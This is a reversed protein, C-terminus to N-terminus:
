KLRFKDFFEDEILIKNPTTYEINTLLRGREAVLKGEHLNLPVIRQIFSKVQTPIIKDDFLEPLFGKKTLSNLFYHIDYYQNRDSLIFISKAWESDVKDNIIINEISSFDFDWLKIQIGINPVIYKKDNINYVFNKNKDTIELKYVLINNAKMDNHRFGPYKTHIIALTAIIQFLIVKWEKVSMIKYNNRLYDLLDGGNAWESILISISDYYENQNKYKTLLDKNKKNLNKTKKFLKYLYDIDTYFTSIPLIIHPTFNNIVFFSLKKLIVLEVNEPRTKSYQDGYIKKKNYPVIKMAYNYIKDDINTSGKFIHGTSGSKIYELNTGLENLINDM